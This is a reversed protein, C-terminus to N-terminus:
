AGFAKGQKRTIEEGAFRIGKGNYPEPKRKNQISHAFNGVVQKDIGTVTIHQNAVTLDLGAPIEMELTNCFGVNLLLKMGQQKATWGVGHIELKEEYGKTVGEVMNNILSRTTGWYAQAQKNRTTSDVVSVRIM